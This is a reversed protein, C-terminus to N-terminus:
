VGQCARVGKKTSNKISDIRKSPNKTSEDQPGNESQIQNVWQLCESFTDQLNDSNFVQLRKKKLLKERQVRSNYDMYHVSNTMSSSDAAMVNDSSGPSINYSSVIDKSNKDLHSFFM